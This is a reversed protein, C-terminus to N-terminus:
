NLLQKAHAMASDSLSKGGLMEALEVVREQADLKKMKTRTVKGDDEKYVKYQQDGKSAVQPLHTISFVQMKSSMQQMIEGMKNSIEGSVGTDIEDFMITPLQEYRALISKIVLMIRSLEGGSAVKKLSGYDAGRNASFEFELQDTGTSTFEDIHRLQIRFTANPMGLDQLATELKKKLDPILASRREHLGTALKTLTKEGAEVKGQLESIELELNETRAIRSALEDRIMALEEVTAANHKKQLAYLLQLKGDVEELLGPNPEVKEQLAEIESVVDELELFVSQIRQSLEAYASGYGALKSLSSKLSSLLNQIGVEEHTLMQHSGDLQELISEVNTLEEYSAELEELIGAQLPAQKLEQYLFANYDREKEADAQANRLDQLEKRDAQYKRLHARYDNLLPKNDALADIVKLQFENETLELTQYQSHVDILRDGLSSLVDLTVPTDNIFARSKGSPLIERRLITEPDYDLDNNKFLDRLGYPEIQFVAEITCKQSKDRLTGLDARKGLVLSLGGLFISKGAGTEGTITSFGRDFAVALDDILAYNKITLHTLM